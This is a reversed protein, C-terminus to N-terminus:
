FSCVCNLLASNVGVCCSEIAVCVCMKSSMNSYTEVTNRNNNEHLSFREMVQRHLWVPYTSTPTYTWGNAVEANSHLPHNGGHGSRKVGPFYGIGFLLSAPHADPDTQIRVSFRAGAPIRVM